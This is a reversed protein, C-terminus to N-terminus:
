GTPTSEPILLDVRSGETPIPETSLNPGGCSSGTCVDTRIDLDQFEEPRIPLNITDDVDGSADPAISGDMLWVCSNQLRHPGCPDEECTAQNPGLTDDIGACAAAIPPNTPLGEVAIWIYGGGEVKSATVHVTLASGSSNLTAAVQASSSRQSATELRMAGYTSLAILIVGTVLFLITPRIGDADRRVGQKRKSKLLFSVALVAIGLGGFVPALLESLQSPLASAPIEYVTFDALAILLLAVGIADAWSANRMTGGDVVVTLVAALVGALLIAAVLSVQAPDNRLVTTIEASRLGLFSIIGGFGALMFGLINQVDSIPNKGADDDKSLAPNGTLTAIETGHDEAPLSMEEGRMARAHMHAGATM